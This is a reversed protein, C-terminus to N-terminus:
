SVFYLKMKSDMKDICINGGNTVWLASKYNLERLCDNVDILLNATVEGFPVAFYKPRINLEKDIIETSISIDDFIKNRSLTSMNFHNYSHNM